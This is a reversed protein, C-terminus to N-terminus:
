PGRRDADRLYDAAASSLTGHRPGKQAPLAGPGSLGRAVLLSVGTGPEGRPKAARVGGAVGRRHACPQRRHHLGREFAKDEDEGLIEGATAVVEGEFRKKRDLNRLARLVGHIERRSLRSRASMGFQREVDDQTYMLVCRAAQQDRGARGAEQLYNELSGPIDAHIVLRVDPKDIGMGFANTAVIARLQGSIFSQQVNKKTEPPLGAHFHDADIGKERLFEAVQETQSRTSCYVIAGGPEHPPLDATLIQHIDSFKAASSTPVVVFELNTRQAGGDFVKLEVGLEERFYEVIESKVDPKATATLCMIPPVPEEGASERIFRGVYRYDPRFDHGWKSLCHAEDLVWAGIERQTLARRMSVSRLQEPSIIIIGADGLRVRELADAREPMSLMGNVTVCSNIGRAELGSVQDAMLAVLPSIVVTLAGTKDYRSLAPVQYCLSKGAGTPLIALAHEGAMATEVIVKQLPRGTEDAPESRFDPFRFWRSLEKRADHRERCWECEPEACATDRLLRVMKGAAPFQHRVWPPMVSNGGSVSLWALAYALSWGQRAADQMIRAAHTKCSNGSLRALIAAHAEANSPRPLHRLSTFVRDFGAGESMTTLWHWAALLDAPAERLAKQQDSFLKLTLRADLEPDNVRGRKLQGDQYHKVLHHYPNRPFALPNLRLTDVAPLRLLRLEPAVARLHPLDFDILNHGLLFDAGDALTDLRDLAQKLSQRGAPFITSPGTDPRVGALAYIRSDTRRVELDISLCRSLADAYSGGTRTSM